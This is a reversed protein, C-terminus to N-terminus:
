NPRYPRLSEAIAILEEATAGGAVTLLVDDKVAYLHPITTYSAVVVRATVGAFAGATLRVDRSVLDAWHTDPEIPDVTAASQPDAVTRTTVTLADFGRKYQVAVVDRGETVQNATTSRAAAATWSQVYGEPLWAPLLTVYGAASGVRALPLRRFGADSRVVKAGKPPAFTFATDPLPEDVRVNRLSYDLQLIGGALMQVRIPLCTHQDITISYTEDYTLGPDSGARKSGSVVWAPRGDYSATELRAAGDAQLARATASIDFQENAWRDPPGLPYGTTVEVRSAYGEADWDWSRSYERFVGSAADYATDAADSRNRMQVPKSTRPKDTQTQRFSGDSRLFVRSHTVSYEPVGGLSVSAEEKVTADAQMTKGTSLAHLAKQLVQAASVPEPGSLRSVGPVGILVVAAVAAAVGVVAATALVPHHNWLSRSRRPLRLWGGPARGMERDAEDLGALLRAEFGPLHDPAGGHTRLIEDLDQREANM